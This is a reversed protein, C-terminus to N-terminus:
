GAGLDDIHRYGAGLERALDRARDLRIPGREIDVLVSPCDFVPLNSWAKLRGDTVLLVRQVEEPFRKQRRGLWRGAEGLAALLPTGGGAGLGELWDRLGGSAKLGQVQWSPALGSVALLALRARQRYADDFLQALLGKADALAQHRRTSASADVIVLWLEHPARSRLHLLLADRSRPRGKLLTGPWDVSGSGANRRPGQRGNKM